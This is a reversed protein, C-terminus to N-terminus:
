LGCETAFFGPAVSSIGIIQRAIPSAINFCEEAGVLHAMEDFLAGHPHHSRWQDAGQPIGVIKSGNSLELESVNDTTIWVRKTMWPDQLRYLQRVYNVLENAKTEKQSQMVFVVGPNWQCLWAVYGCCAWSTMMERTKPIFVRKRELLYHLLVAFYQKQPFHAVNPTGKSLWHTDETKTYQTLWLLPGADFAAVRRACLEWIADNTKTNILIARAAARSEPSGLPFDAPSLNTASVLNRNDKASLSKGEM